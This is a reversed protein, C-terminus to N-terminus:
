DPEILLMLVDKFLVCVKVVSHSLVDSPQKGSVGNRRVFSFMNLFLDIIFIENRMEFVELRRVPVREPELWWRRLVGVDSPSYFESGHVDLQSVKFVGAQDHSKPKNCINNIVEVHVKNKRDGHSVIIHFSSM